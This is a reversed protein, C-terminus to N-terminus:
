IIRQLCQSKQGISDRKFALTHRKLESIKYFIKAM